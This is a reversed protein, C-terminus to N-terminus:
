VPYILPSWHRTTPELAAVWWLVWTAVALFSGLPVRTTAVFPRGRRWARLPVAVLSALSALLVMLAFAEYSLWPGVAAALKVDGLGLGERRRLRLYATRLLLFLGGFIVTRLTADALGALGAGEGIFAFIFGIGALAVSLGDPIIYRRADFVAIPWVLAALFAGAAAKIPPLLLLGAAGSAAIMGAMFFFDATRLLPPPRLGRQAIPAHAIV